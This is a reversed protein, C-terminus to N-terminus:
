NNIRVRVENQNKLLVVLRLLQSTNRIFILLAFSMDEVEEIAGKFKLHM